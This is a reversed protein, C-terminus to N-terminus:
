LEQFINNKFAPFHFRTIHENELWKDVSYLNSFNAPQKSGLGTFQKAKGNLGSPHRPLGALISM